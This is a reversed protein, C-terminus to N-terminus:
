TTIDTECGACAATGKMAFNMCTWTTLNEAAYIGLQSALALSPSELFHLHKGM